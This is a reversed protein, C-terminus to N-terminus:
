FLFPRAMSYFDPAEEDVEPLSLWKFDAVKEANVESDLSVLVARFYFIKAKDDERTECYSPANGLFYRFPAWALIAV